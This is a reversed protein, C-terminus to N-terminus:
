TRRTPIFIGCLGSPLHSALLLKLTLFCASQWMRENDADTYQNEKKRGKQENTAKSAQRKAQKIIIM